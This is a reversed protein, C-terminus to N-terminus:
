TSEQFGRRKELQCLWIYVYKYSKIDIGVREAYRLTHFGTIDAVTLRNGVLFDLSQLHTDLRALLTKASEIAWNTVAPNQEFNTRTGPIVAGKFMEFKNRAGHFLPLYGDNEIRRNWMEILAMEEANEGFLKIESYNKQELYKCIALTESIVTGNGLDLFPICNFPNMTKFPERLHEGEMINLQITEVKIKTEKLFKEVRKSSPAADFQYLKM